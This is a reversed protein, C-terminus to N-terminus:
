KNIRTIKVGQLGLGAMRGSQGFIFACIEKKTAAVVMKPHTM